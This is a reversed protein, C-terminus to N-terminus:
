VLTEAYGQPLEAMLDSFEKDTLTERLTAFVALAHDFAQEHTVEERNAVREIFEDLSMRRANGGTRGKGRELAPRLEDGLQEALEDAEDGAIREALTELVAEGARRAEFPGLAARRAVRRVFLEVAVAEPAGAERKRRTAEQVLPKYEDPLQAIVQAVEEGRALRSLAIFAAQAHHRATEPEVGEREAVRRVFEDVDFRGAEEGDSLLWERIEPPLDEALRRAEGGSIREGLTELTARAAREAKVWSIRAKQEITTIFREYRWEDSYAHALEATAGQSRSSV